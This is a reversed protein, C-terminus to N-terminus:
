GLDDFRNNLEDLEEGEIQNATPLDKLDFLQASYFILISIALLAISLGGFLYYNFTEYGFISKLFVGAFLVAAILIILISCTYLFSPWRAIRKDKM